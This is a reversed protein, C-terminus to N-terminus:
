KGGMVSTRLGKLGGLGALTTLGSGIDGLTSGAKNLASGANTTANVAQSGAEVANLPNYLQQQGTLYQIGRQNLENQTGFANGVNGTEAQGANNIATNRISSEMGTPAASMGRATLGKLAGQAQGSYAKATLGQQNALQKAVLPSLGGNTNMQNAVAADSQNRYGSQIGQDQGAIQNATNGLNEGTSAASSLPNRGKKCEAVPGSYEFGEEHILKGDRDFVLKTHIRM